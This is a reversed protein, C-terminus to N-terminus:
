RGGASKRSPRKPEAPTRPVALSALFDPFRSLGVAFALKELGEVRVRDARALRSLVENVSEQVLEGGHGARRARWIITPFTGHGSARVEQVDEACIWAQGLGAAGQFTLLVFRGRVKGPGADKANADSM